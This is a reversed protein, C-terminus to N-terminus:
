QGEACLVRVVSAEDFIREWASWTCLVAVNGKCLLVRVGEHKLDLLRPIEGLVAQFSRAKDTVQVTSCALCLKHGIAEASHPWQPTRLFFVEDGSKLLKQM